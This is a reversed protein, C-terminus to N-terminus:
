RNAGQAGAAIEASHAAGGPSGEDRAAVFRERYESLTAGEFRGRAAAFLQDLRRYLTEISAASPFSPSGGPMLESSHIAMEIYDAGQSLAWDLMTPLQRVNGRFPRFWLHRPFIRDAVRQARPSRCALRHVAAAVGRRAGPAITMPVELLPSDGARRIDDVDVWYAHSPFERYDCGGPYSRGAFDHRWSLHPTVSCDVTYGEDILLQAYTENMAWRGARHSRMKTQFIEELRQTVARIKARADDRPYEILCPQRAGDSHDFQAAPPNNWAHLHMGIEGVDRRLVDRGFDRFVDCCAMEWNVLWTPRLGFQECLQQFRPLFQANRTTIVEPMSWLDDGETDITILFAPKRLTSDTM